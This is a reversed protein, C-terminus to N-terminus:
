AKKKIDTYEYFKNVKNIYRLFKRGFLFVKKNLVKM